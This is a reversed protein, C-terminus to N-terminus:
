RFIAINPLFQAIRTANSNGNKDWGIVGNRRQTFLFDLLNPINAIFFRNETHTSIVSPGFLLVSVEIAVFARRRDHRM